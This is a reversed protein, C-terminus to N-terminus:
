ATSRRELSLTVGNKAILLFSRPDYEMPIQTKECPHFKYTKLLLAACTKIEYRAFRAAICIRPGAGFPLFTGKAIDNKEPDFREPKFKEPEPFYQPDHHIGYTPVIVTVGAPVVIETGPIQYDKTVKRDVAAAPSHMRLTESVAQELYSMEAIAEFSYEGKHKELVNTIDDYLIQQKDQNLALEYLLYSLTTATTEYGAAFFVFANSVLSHHDFVVPDNPDLEKKKVLDDDKKKLETLLHLFDPRQVNNKERYALTEDVANVFFDMMSKPIMGMGLKKYVSALFPQLLFFIKLFYSPMFSSRGIKYFESQPNNMIDLDLGFACSAIVDMSFRGCLDKVEVCDKRDFKGLYKVFSEACTVLQPHMGKLKGTSFTPTLKNRLAKWKDDHYNVLHKSLANTEIDSTNNRNYLHSFDKILISEVLDPDKVILTPRWLTYVGYFRENPYTKYAKNAFVNPAELMMSMNGIFPIDPVVDPVGLKKWFGYPNFAKYLLYITVVVLALEVIGFGM